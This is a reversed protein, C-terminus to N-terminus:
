GFIVVRPCCSDQAMKHYLHKAGNQFSRWKRDVARSMIIVRLLNISFEIRFHKLLM